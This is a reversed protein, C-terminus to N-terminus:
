KDNLNIVTRIADASYAIGLGMRQVSSLATDTIPISGSVIGLVNPIKKAGSVVTQGQAGIITPQQNLIVVSGNSGPFVNSDILFGDIRGLM